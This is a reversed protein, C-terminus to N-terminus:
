GLGVITRRETKKEREMGLVWEWRQDWAGLGGIERKGNTGVREEGRRHTETDTPM